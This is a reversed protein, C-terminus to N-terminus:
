LDDKQDSDTKNKNLGVLESMEQIYGMAKAKEDDPMDKSSMMLQFLEMAVRGKELPAAEFPIEKSGFRKIWRILGDRDRNGRLADGGTKNGAPFIYVHPVGPMYPYVLDASNKSVDIHGFKLFDLGAAKCEEAFAEFQPLFKDCHPCNVRKYLVVADVTDDMVFKSYTTGVLKQVAGSSPGPEPESLFEPGLEGSDIKRLLRVAARLWTEEAFARILEEPFFSSVNWHKGEPFNFVAIGTRGTFDDHTVHEVYSLVDDGAWGVLFNPFRIGVEFLFDQYDSTIESTVLAFVIKEADQLDAPGLTRFVPFSLEYLKELDFDMDVIVQDEVRFLAASSSNVSLSLMLSPDVTVVDMAGLQSAAQYQLLTSRATLNPPTIIAFPCNGIRLYLQKLDHIPESQPFLLQHILFLLISDSDPYRYVGLLFSGVYVFIAPLEIEHERALTTASAKDIFAFQAQGYFLVSVDLFTQQVEDSAGARDSLALAFLVRDTAPLSKLDTATVTQITSTATASYPVFVAHAIGVVLLLM